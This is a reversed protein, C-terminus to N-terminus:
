DRIRYDPMKKSSQLSADIIYIFYVRPRAGRSLTLEENRWLVSESMAVRREYRMPAALSSLCVLTPCSVEKIWAIWEVRAVFTKIELPKLEFQLGDLTGVSRDAALKMLELSLVNFETFMEGVDVTIPADAEDQSIFYEFANFYQTWDLHNINISM